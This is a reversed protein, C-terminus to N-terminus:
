GRGGSAYPSAVGPPRTKFRRHSWLYQEPHKRVQAEILRNLRTADGLADNGPFQELPAGIQLVCRAPRLAFHHSCLMVLADGARAIRSTTVLTAAPVGFFPAFVSHRPGYDQDPAYWLVRGARLGGLMARLEDRHVLRAIWRQRGRRMVRDWVPNSQTRYVADLEIRQGLLSGALELSNMHMGILLVGRGSARAQEIHELGAIELLPSLRGPASWWGIGAAVIGRGTSRFSARLLRQRRAPELGPFCLEVNTAAIRRRRWAGRYLLEGLASGTAFAAPLPLRTVLWLLAVAIWTPWFRPQLTRDPHMSQTNQPSPFRNYPADPAPLHQAVM